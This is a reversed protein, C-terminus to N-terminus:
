YTEPRYKDISLPAWCCPGVLGSCPENVVGYRQNGASLRTRPRPRGMGRATDHPRVGEGPGATPLLRNGEGDFDASTLTIETENVSNVDCGRPEHRCRPHLTTRSKTTTHGTMSRRATHGHPPGSASYAMRLPRVVRELTEYQGPASITESHSEPGRLPM